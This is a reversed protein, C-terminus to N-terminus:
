WVYEKKLEKIQDKLKKRENVYRQLMYYVVAVLVFMLIYIAISVLFYVSQGILSYLIATLTVIAGFIMAISGMFMSTLFEHDM